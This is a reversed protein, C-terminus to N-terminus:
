LSHIEETIFYNFSHQFIATWKYTYINALLGYNYDGVEEGDEAGTDQALQGHHLSLCLSKM